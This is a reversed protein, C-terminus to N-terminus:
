EQPWVSPQSKPSSSAPSHLQVSKLMCNSTKGSSSFLDAVGKAQFRGRWFVSKNRECTRYPVYLCLEIILRSLQRRSHQTMYDPLFACVIWDVDSSGCELVPAALKELLRYMEVVSRLMVAWFHTTKMNVSCLFPFRCQLHKKKPWWVDTFILSLKVNLSV